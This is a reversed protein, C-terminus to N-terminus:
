DAKIGAAKVVRTWSALERKVREGLAEPAGGEPVLGQKAIVDKVDAEKLLENMEKNVRAVIATPTGAPAFIAYWTEVELDPLGAEKLTPVDPFADSRRASMVALMRLRGSQVHPSVTQLASIMAQVHGGILDSIAGAAGKYPVHVIDMGTELKLLEMALHQPGGNGPSSYYLKGPQSRVLSVFERATKAPVQPHIYVGLAGTALLAIPAFDKVPDFPAPNLAPNTTFSTATLLLTYGDPAAKAAEAAGINGTAGPRNDTVVAAKWREAVKPGLVRSLIDAGTGPTYPVIIHIPRSPYDQAAASAACALFLGALLRTM